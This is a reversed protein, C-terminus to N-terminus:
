NWSENAGRGSKRVIYPSALAFGSLSTWPALMPGVQTRDAGSPGMNAGHVKSDLFNANNGNDSLSFHTMFMLTNQIGFLEWMGSFIRAATMWFSAKRSGMRRNVLKLHKCRRFWRNTLLMVDIAKRLVTWSSKPAKALMDQAFVRRM